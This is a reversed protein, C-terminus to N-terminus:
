TGSTTAPTINNTRSFLNAPDYAAKVAALRALNPGYAGDVSTSAPEDSLGTFNLYSRGTGYRGIAGWAARVWAVGDRDLAPDPWNGDISVLYGASREGFATEDPGVANIAGGMHWVNVVTLPAPRDLAVGAFADIAGDSITDLYQSKWYSRLSGRAFLADFASQVVTYPMPGSIDLLPTGIDRLPRLALMGEDVGGAHVAAAIACARGQVPEPVHPDHPLTIVIVISSVEDPAEATFTRWRDLVAAVDEAPHFCGAFAVEPGVPHLRYTLSTAVGFNGGGGRIAWFLDPESGASATHVSGDAAVLQAEVLNDCALGYRRRLWGYGGGLTLGGIGTDSVVGGPTALGFLQTERDVGGWLAGGQAHVLRRTPDARAASMPSLDILVGGDGASLGAISHGGGRVTVPLGRERAFNVAQVVDSTGSCRVVLAATGAHMANFVPRVGANRPDGALLASGGLR